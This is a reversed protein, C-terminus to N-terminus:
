AAVLERAYEAEDTTLERESLFVTEYPITDGNEALKWGTLTHSLDSAESATHNWLETIVFDVMAIEDGAFMRLDPERVAVTRAQEYGGPTFRKKVVVDGDRELDSRVPMLRRPAPGNKLRQYEQGTISRGRRQYYLFDAFFLIKNLKVAGFYEDRECKDSIYLILEALRTDDQKVM